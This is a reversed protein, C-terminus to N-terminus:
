VHDAWVRTESPYDLAFQQAEARKTFSALRVTFEYDWDKGVVNWITHVPCEDDYGYIAWAGEADYWECTCDGVDLGMARQDARRVVSRLRDIWDKTRGLRAVALKTDDTNNM